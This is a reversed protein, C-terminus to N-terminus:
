GEISAVGGAAASRFRATGDALRPAPDVGFVMRRRMEDVQLERLQERSELLRLGERVVESASHYRGTRVREHVFGELEKTLSVNM